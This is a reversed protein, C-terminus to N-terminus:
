ICGIVFFFLGLIMPPFRRMKDRRAAAQKGATFKAALVADSLVDREAPPLADIGEGESDGFMSRRVGDRVQAPSRARLVDFAFFTYLSIYLFM